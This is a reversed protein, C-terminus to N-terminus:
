DARLANMPDAKTARRAPLYCAVAAVALVLIAVSAFTLPDAPSVEYILSRLVRAFALAGLLGIAVGGLALFASQRLVLRVV